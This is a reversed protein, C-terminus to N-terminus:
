GLLEAVEAPLVHVPAEAGAWSSKTHGGVIMLRGNVVVVNRKKDGNDSNRYMIDRATSYRFPFTTGTLFIMSFLERMTDM